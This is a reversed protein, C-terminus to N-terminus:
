QGICVVSRVNPSYVKKAVWAVAGVAQWSVDVAVAEKQAYEGFM